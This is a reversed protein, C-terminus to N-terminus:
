TFFYLFGTIFFMLLADTYSFVGYTMVIPTMLLFAASLLGAIKNNERRFLMYLLMASLLVATPSLLKFFSEGLMFAAAGFISFMPYSNVYHSIDTDYLPRYKPNIGKEAIYRSMYAHYPEDGFTIANLAVSFYLAGIIAAIAIMLWDLTSKPMRM